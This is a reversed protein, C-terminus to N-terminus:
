WEEQWEISPQQDFYIAIYPTGDELRSEMNTFDIWYYTGDNCFWALENGEITQELGLFDYWDNLSVVSGLIFNRNLHYEADMVEPLSAEFYRKSHVDYCLKKPEGETIKPDSISSQSFSGTASIYPHNCDELAIANLIRKHEEPGHFEILKNRYRSYSENLMGYASILATNHNRSIVVNGAICVITATGSLVAPYYSKIFARVPKNPDKEIEESYKNAGKASLIATGILGICSLVPLIFPKYKRLNM